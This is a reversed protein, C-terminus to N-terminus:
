QYLWVGDNVIAGSVFSFRELLVLEKKSLLLWV